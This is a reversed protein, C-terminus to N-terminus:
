PLVSLGLALTPSVRSGLVYAGTNASVALRRALPYRVSASPILVAGVSFDDDDLWPDPAPNGVQGSIPVRRWRAGLQLALSVTARRVPLDVAPGAAAFVWENRVVHYSDPPPPHGFVDNVRAYALSVVGSVPGSLRRAVQLGGLPGARSGDDGRDYADILVGASPEVRWEPADPTQASARTAAGIYLLFAGAIIACRWSGVSFTM